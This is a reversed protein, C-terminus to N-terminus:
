DEEDPGEAQDADESENEEEDEDDELEECESLVCTQDDECDAPSLCEVCYGSADCIPDDFLSCTSSDDCPVACQGMPSCGEGQEQCHGPELCEVCRGGDCFPEEGGCDESSACEVCRGSSADCVPSVGPCEANSACGRCLGSTQDCVPNMTPCDGTRCPDACSGIPLVCIQGNDCHSTELCGRCVGSGTDCRPTPAECQESSECGTPADEPRTILDSTTDGCSGVSFLVLVWCLPGRLRRCKM